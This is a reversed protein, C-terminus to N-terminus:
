RERILAFVTEDFLDKYEPIRENLFNGAACLQFYGGICIYTPYFSFPIYWWGMAAFITLPMAFGFTLIFMDIVPQVLTRPTAMRCLVDFEALSQLAAAVHENAVAKKEMIDDELGAYRFPERRTLGTATDLVDIMRRNAIDRRAILAKYMEKHCGGIRASRCAKELLAFATVANTRTTYSEQTGAFQVFSACLTLIVMMGSNMTPDDRKLMERAGFAILLGVVFLMGSIRISRWCNRISVAFQKAMPLLSYYNQSDGVGFTRSDM